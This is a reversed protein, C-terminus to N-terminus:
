TKHARIMERKGPPGPLAEVTLGLSKLDRKVQGKACYTVFIGGPKMTSVVKKLVDQSWMEPQKEPAFADFYVLDFESSPLDTEQVSVHKKHLKFNNNIQIPNNWDALHLRTFLAKDADKEAYNLKTWISEELPFSELTVYEVHGNADQIHRATLWANLGTGFGIELISIKQPSKEQVFELGHRIFVHLSEQVAGHISHYTENLEVNRLTQSGDKTFIIEIMTYM